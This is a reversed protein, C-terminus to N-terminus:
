VETSIMSQHRPREAKFLYARRIDLRTLPVEIVKEDDPSINELSSPMDLLDPQNSPIIRVGALTTLESPELRAVVADAVVRVASTYNEDSWSSSLVVDWRDVDEREALAFLYVTGRKELEPLLSGIKQALAIM